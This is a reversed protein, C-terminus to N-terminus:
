TAGQAAVDARVGYGLQSMDGVRYAQVETFGAGRLLAMLGEDSYLSMGHRFPAWLLGEMPEKAQTLVVLRGGPRLVRCAERLPPEPESIIHFANVISAADFTGDEWPLDGADGVRTDLRGEAVADANTERTLDVLVDSHDLGAAKQVTELARALLAGGGCAVDLYVDDPRLALKDLVEPYSSAHWPDHKYVFRAVPGFPKRGFGTANGLQTLWERGRLWLVIGIGVLVALKILKKV